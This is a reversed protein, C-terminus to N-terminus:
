NLSPQDTSDILAYTDPITKTRTIYGLYQPFHSQTFNTGCSLSSYMLPVYLFGVCYGEAVISPIDHSSAMNWTCSPPSFYCVTSSKGFQERDEEMVPLKWGSACM